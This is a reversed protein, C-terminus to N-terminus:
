RLIYPNEIYKKLQEEFLEVQKGQTIFGSM